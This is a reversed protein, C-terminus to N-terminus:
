ALPTRNRSVPLITVRSELSSNAAIGLVKRAHQKAKEEADLRAEKLPNESGGHELLGTPVPALVHLLSIQFGKRKGVFTGVYKM